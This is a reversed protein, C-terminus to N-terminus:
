GTFEVIELGHNYGTLYILGKKDVFVDCINVGTRTLDYQKPTGPVYYGLEEILYPNSVDYIRLGGAGTTAYIRDDSRFSNPGPCNEHINHIAPGRWISGGGREVLEKPAYPFMSIVKPYEEDSIDLMYAHSHEIIFIAFQRDKIPMLTHGPGDMRYIMDSKNVRKPCRINSIDLIAAGGWKFWATYLRNGQPIALHAFGHHRTPWSEGAATNQGPLWWRSVETPEKPNLLDVIRLIRGYFGPASASLYAYRGDFSFRHSGVGGGDRSWGGTKFFSLLKPEAPKSVDFVKIGTEIPELPGNDIDGDLMSVDEGRARREGLVTYQPPTELKFENTVVLINGVVRCKCSHVFPSGTPIFKVVEPKSPDKVDVIDLGSWQTHCVYAYNGEKSIGFTEGRGELDYQSLLKTNKFLPPFQHPTYYVRDPRKPQKDRLSIVESYDLGTTQDTEYKIAKTKSM